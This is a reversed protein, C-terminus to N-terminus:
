VDFKCQCLFVPVGPKGKPPPANPDIEEQPLGWITEMWDHKVPDDGFQEKHNPIGTRFRVACHLCKQVYGIVRKLCEVHGEHPASCFCGLSM